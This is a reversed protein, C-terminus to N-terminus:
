SFAKCLLCIETYVLRFFVPWSLVRALAMTGLGRGRWGWTPFRLHSFLYLDVMFKKFHVFSFQSQTKHILTVVDVSTLQYRVSM